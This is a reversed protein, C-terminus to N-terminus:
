TLNLLALVGAAVLIAAAGGVIAVLWRNNWWRRNRQEGSRIRAPSGSSAEATVALNGRQSGAGSSAVDGGSILGVSGGISGITIGGIKPDIPALTKAGFRNLRRTIAGEIQGHLGIVRTADSGATTLTTGRGAQPATKRLDSILIAEAGSATVCLELHSVESESVGRLDERLEDITTAKVEVDTLTADALLTVSDFEKDFLSAALTTAALFDEISLPQEWSTNQRHHKAM